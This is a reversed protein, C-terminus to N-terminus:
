VCLMILKDIFQFKQQKASVLIKSNCIKFEDIKFTLVCVCVCM